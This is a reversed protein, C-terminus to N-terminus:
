AWIDHQLDLICHTSSVLANDADDENKGTLRGRRPVRGRRRYRGTLMLPEESGGDGKSSGEVNIPSAAVMTAKEDVAGKSAQSSSVSAGGARGRISRREMYGSDTAHESRSGRPQGPQRWSSSNCGRNQLYGRRPVAEWGGCRAADMEVQRWYQRDVDNRLRSPGTPVPPMMSLRPDYWFPQTM